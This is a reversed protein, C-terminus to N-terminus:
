ERAPVELYGLGRLTQLEGPSLEQATEEVREIGDRVRLLRQRLRSVVQPAAARLDVDERGLQFLRADWVGERESVIIKYGDEVLGFRPVRSGGLTALYPRSSVERAGPALLDRGPSGAGVALGELLALLTPRVDLLSVVDGRREPARGPVCLLLPVRVQADTLHEGHAFWVDDEGLSEGHDAAFVVVTQEAMGLAEVADLLRGVQEDVYEIEGRYGARYYAVERRGSLYQYGPIAGLGSHDDGVPLRRRGGAAERERALHRERRGAPPDYPGHPDQYHVWVFVREEADAVFRELLDLAADTADEAVREPWRRVVEESEYVDDYRDFGRALGSGARLVFNSVVAGTRWGRERLAEALTPATESVASENSWIGLEEPYRGTLLAAVSPLTFPAPAYAAEFVSCRGALEDLRPTLGLASGYAGLEDARLTDVTALLLLRAQPPEACSAVLLALAALRAPRPIRRTRAAAQGV